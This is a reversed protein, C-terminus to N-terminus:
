GLLLELDERTLKRILSNDANIIADALARKREQLELVKEEVTGKAILRYAFVPRTQGIRHSRDIAQAEVAPNWWPDLLYVYEAATLNLGLGGAKLSILFLKCDPDNQFQEVAKQRDRTRGDLYAYLVKKRDLHSRVIALMSTFQSFVLVKHGEDVIEELSPLLADLKASSKKIQTKDILGPHCAAQRLRLLAELIHMKSKAIGDREVRGLLAARYHDRLEDYQKQQPGELECYITHETKPPLDSAVQEKTRRLIFPRLARALMQRAQDDQGGWASSCKQFASAAGLMGPNLFDMLSWLEGLHNEIPTGSLALKHSARLLRVAKATATTHNKVAQAEDLIVYDFAIDKLIAADRRLTGYTTLVLDTDDFATAERTRTLGTHNCVRLAPTFREAEQQWNFLVSRPVVALIPGPRGPDDPPTDARLQRRSEILALAEITKGLGMDDALCGGLGFRRLFHLWGLGDKQYPRLEGQFGPPAETAEIGGFEHLEDRLSQFTADFTVEPQAALLADLIGAQSRAFRIEDRKATGLGALFDLKKSWDDPLIGFSGDTLMVTESHKKVAELLEPIGALVGDFDADAQLDFWDIGSTVELSLSKLKRYAKGEMEVNWGEAILESIIRPLKTRLVRLEGERGYSEQRFGAAYLRAQAQQEAATDRRLLRCEEPRFLGTRLDQPTILEGEYGFALSATFHRRSNRNSRVDLHFIPIGPVETFQLEDPLDIRPLSTGSALASQVFNPGDRVPVQLKPDRRLLAIWPFADGHSLRSVRDSEFLWGDALLMKPRSLEMPDSGPRLLKGAVDYATGNPNLAVEVAFEWPPGEDFEIPGLLQTNETELFFRRTRCLMPLVVEMSTPMLQFPTSKGYYSDYYGIYLPASDAGTLVAVIQRDLPEPIAEIDSARRISLNTLKTFGGNKRPRQVRVDLITGEGELARPMNLSYIIQQGEPWPRRTDELGAKRALKLTDLFWQWKEPEPAPQRAQRAPRAPRLYLPAEEEWDEEWDDEGEVMQVSLLSGLVNLKRAKDAALLTAWVHKCNGWEDFYPCTCRFYLTDVGLAIHVDYPRSRSGQVAASILDFESETITVRGQRFYMAGRQRVTASFKPKLLDIMSV